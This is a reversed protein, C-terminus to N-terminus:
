AGIGTQACHIDKFKMDKFKQSVELYKHESMYLCRRLRAVRVGEWLGDRRVLRLMTSVAGKGRGAKSALMGVGPELYEIGGLSFSEITVGNGGSGDANGSSKMEVVFRVAGDEGLRGRSALMNIEVREVGVRESLRACALDDVVCGKVNGM